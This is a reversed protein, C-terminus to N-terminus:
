FRLNQPHTPALGLQAGMVKMWAEVAKELLPDIGFHLAVEASQMTSGSIKYEGSPGSILMEDETFDIRFGAFKIKAREFIIKEGPVHKLLLGVDKPASRIRIRQGETSVDWIKSSTRWENDNITIIPNGRTDAMFANMLWPDGAFEPRKFGLLTIDGFQLIKPVDIFIGGGIEVRLPRDASEFVGFAYGQQLAMPNKAAEIAKSKSM